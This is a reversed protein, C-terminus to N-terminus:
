GKLDSPESTVKFPKMIVNGASDKLPADKKIDFKKDGDDTYLVAYYIGGETTPTSLTIQGPYIGKEFYKSGIVAGLKGADNKHIVVFGGNALQVSSIYVKDGPAQDVIMIRNTTAPNTNTTTTDTTEANETNETAPTSPGSFMKYGLIVLIIIVIVTVVWQWTKIGSTSEM